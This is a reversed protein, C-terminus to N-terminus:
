VELITIGQEINMIGKQNQSTWTLITMNNIKKNTQLVAKLKKSVAQREINYHEDFLLLRHIWCFFIFM